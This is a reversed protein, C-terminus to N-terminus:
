RCTGNRKCRDSCCDAGSSCPDNKQGLTCGVCTDTAEDCTEGAPCPDGSSECQGTETNCSEAGNCFFGDNPCDADSTCGPQPDLFEAVSDYYFALAGDVTANSGADCPDNINTGCAGYLQGVIQGSSNVVPSGSSGGDTGGFVDFSYIFEGRPLGSCTGAGTDVTHRSLVQPGYNPNSVRTLAAGHSNAIPANSWGLYTSGTPPNGSLELLTFDGDRSSALVVSGSTHPAPEGPCLGECSSTTYEFFTEVNAAVRNRSLCHNATLFLNRQSSGDTDAILGGTCTWICCGQIWEMKAIASQDAPAVSGCNADEVCPPNGNWGCKENNHNWDHSRPDPRPFGNGIHAVKDIIFSIGRLKDPTAPGIQRVLIVGTDSRVSDTWFEGTGHRGKGTYPGYAEGATDFFYMEANAPLSFNKVHVRIAHAGESGVSIAWSFGGDAMYEFTGGPVRANPGAPVIGSVSLAAPM